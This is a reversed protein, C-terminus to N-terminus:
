IHKSLDIGAEDCVSVAVYFLHDYDKQLIDKEKRAQILAAVQAEYQLQLDVVADSLAEVAAEHNDLTLNADLILEAIRDTNPM